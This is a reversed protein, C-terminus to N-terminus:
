ILTILNKGAKANGDVSANALDSDRGVVTPTSHIVILVAYPNINEHHYKM